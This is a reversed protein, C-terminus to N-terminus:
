LVGIAFLACLGIVKSRPINLKMVVRQPISLIAVDSVLCVIAGSVNVAFVDICHGEMITKDWFKERPSCSFIQLFTFAVYYVVNTYLTVQSAWYTFNRDGAPCFVRIYQLLITIKLLLILIGWIVLLAYQLEEFNAFINRPDALVSRVFLYRGFQRWTIDWQHVGM